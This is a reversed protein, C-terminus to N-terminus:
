RTLVESVEWFNNLAVYKSQFKRGSLNLVFVFVFCFFFGNAAGCKYDNSLDIIATRREEYWELCSITM